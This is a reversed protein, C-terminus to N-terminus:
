SISANCLLLAGLSVLVHLDSLLALGVRWSPPSAGGSPRAAEPWRAHYALGAGLVLMVLLTLLAFPAKPQLAFLLGGSPAGATVGFIIGTTVTSMAEGREADDPFLRQVHLFGSCLICSSALGQTARAVLWSGYSSTALFVLNSLVDFALGCFLLKLGLRDVLRAVIPVSMVQVIAKSSFLLGTAFESVGLSPFIPIASTMLAYDCFLSLWVIATGARARARDKTDPKRADDM